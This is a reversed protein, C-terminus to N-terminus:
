ERYPDDFPLHEYGKLAASTVVNLKLISSAGNTTAFPTLEALLLAM